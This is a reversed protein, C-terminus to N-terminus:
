PGFRETRVDDHQMGTDLLHNGMSEVFDSGGCIYTRDPLNGAGVVTTIASDIMSRDIRRDEGSWGLPTGRTLTVVLDFQPDSKSMQELEDRFLIDAETRVSFMLLAPAKSGSSVRHRLMSMIPAIGSGGAIYLIPKTSIPLWTFHGGIPGRLEIQDGVEVAEHFYSSVE